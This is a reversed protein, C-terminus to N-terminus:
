LGDFVPFECEATGSPCFPYQLKLCSLRLFHFEPKPRCKTGKTNKDFKNEKRIPCKPDQLASRTQDTEINPTQFYTLTLSVKSIKSHM